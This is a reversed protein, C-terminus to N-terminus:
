VQNQMVCIVARGCARVRARKSSIRRVDRNSSRLLQWGSECQFLSTERRREVTEREVAANVFVFTVSAYFSGLM